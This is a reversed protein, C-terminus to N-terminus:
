IIDKGFLRFRISYGFIIKGSYGLRRSFICNKAKKISFWNKRDVSKIWDGSEPIKMKGVEDHIFFPTTSSGKIPKSKFDIINIKNEMDDQIYNSFIM